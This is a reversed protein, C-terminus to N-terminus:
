DASRVVHVAERHPSNGPLLSRVGADLTVLRGAHRIALGLLYADTINVDLLGVKM